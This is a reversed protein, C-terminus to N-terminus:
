TTSSATASSARSRAAAWCRRSRAASPTSPSASTPSSTATSRRAGGAHQPAPRDAPEARRPRALRPSSATSSARLEAYPVQSMIVFEVPRRAAVARAFAPQDPVRDRGPDVDLKPRLEDTIQQQRRTREEWPKLRLIAIGDVVTPFGAIANFAAAEPIKAYIEEIPRLQEATYQPTSGQPASVFGFVVGRDEIPALESKLQTFLFTGGAVGRALGAVVVWRTPAGRAAPAPLGADPTSGDEIVNYIASHREQHKLLLSCMMPSLTLAVFGSVLVAGALTLAFEIFLRGTRGTAFALPAYVAALTLTMAVIAFAIERAGKIAATRPTMGDEVHRYINELMVIADDVVLGIALVMALLTLTNITFGFVYMLAFAGVLSVPITVIPIITARLSRLFFFIVLVVLVIAEVITTFVSKISQDIFVSTDYAVVLKMGAPLGKNIKEVEARVAQSLELPNAVAQKIVGVNLSTKGNFRSIMREDLPGVAVTGLDRVRM